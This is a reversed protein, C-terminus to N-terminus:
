SALLAGDHKVPHEATSRMSELMSGFLAEQISERNHSLLAAVFILDLSCDGSYKLM